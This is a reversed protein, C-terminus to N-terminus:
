NGKDYLERIRKGKAIKISLFDGDEVADEKEKWDFVYWGGERSWGDTGRQVREDLQLFFEDPLSESLRIRKWLISQGYEGFGWHRFVVFYPFDLGTLRRVKEVETEEKEGKRWFIGGCLLLAITVVIIINSIM